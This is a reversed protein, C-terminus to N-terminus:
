EKEPQNFTVELKLSYPLGSDPAIVLNEVTYPLELIKKANLTKSKGRIELVTTRDPSLTVAEPFTVDELEKEAKLVLPLELNNTIQVFVRDKGTVTIGPNRVTIGADMIAKLYLPDGVLRDQQYVATRREFLAQKLSELTKERAFVLTMARHEGSQFDVDMAIPNHVDTNSMFTLKKDLCWQLVLPYYEPGNVVEAGHMWGKELLETHIPYWRPIGDPQQGTWGPHNWFVFAKQDMAAKVADMFEPTVLANADEIFIANLHGPPMQRTIEAGRVLLIGLSRALGLALEYPRNPNPKVDEKHPQYELHDTISIADLGEKWAEQVRTHPWVNGDSFVTHMHFDCKLTVYGPIDPIRIEYRTRDQALLPFRILLMLAATFLSIYLRKQHSM